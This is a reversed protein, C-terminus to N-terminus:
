STSIKRRHSFKTACSRVSSSRIRRVAMSAFIFAREASQISRRQNRMGAPLQRCLKRNESKDKEGKKECLITSGFLFPRCNGETKACIDKVIGGECLLIAISYHTSSWEPLLTQQYGALGGTTTQLFRRLANEKVTMSRGRAWTRLKATDVFSFMRLPERQVMRRNQGIRVLLHM